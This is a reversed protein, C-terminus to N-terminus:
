KDQPKKDDHQLQNSNNQPKIIEHVYKVHQHNIARNNSCERETIFSGPQFIQASM